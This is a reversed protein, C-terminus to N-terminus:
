LPHYFILSFVPPVGVLGSFLTAQPYLHFTLYHPFSHYLLRLMVPCPPYSLRPLFLRLMLLPFSLFLDFPRSLVLSAYLCAFRMCACFITFGLSLPSPPYHPPRPLLSIFCASRMCSWFLTFGLSLLSFFLLSLPRKPGVFVLFSCSWAQPYLPSLLCFYCSPPSLFHPRPPSVLVLV